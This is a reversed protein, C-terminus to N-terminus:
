DARVFRLIVPSFFFLLAVTSFAILLSLGLRFTKHDYARLAGEYLPVDPSRRRRLSELDTRLEFQRVLVQIAYKPTQWVKEPARPYKAIVSAASPRNSLVPAGLAISSSSPPAPSFRQSPAVGPQSSYSSAMGPHSSAPAPAVREQQPHGSPPRPHVGSATTGPGGPRAPAHADGLARPAGFALDPVPSGPPLPPAPATPAKSRMATASNSPLDLELSGGPVDDAFPDDFDVGGGDYSSAGAAGHTSAISGKELDLSGGPLDDDDFDSGLTRGMM